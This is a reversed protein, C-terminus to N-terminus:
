DSVLAAAAEEAFRGLLTATLLGNGSLYGAAMIGSVGAAVGGAAFVNPFMTGDERKVRGPMM